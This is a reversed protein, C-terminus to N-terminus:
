RESAEGVSSGDEPLGAAEVCTPCWWGHGIGHMGDIEWTSGVFRLVPGFERKCSSCSGSERRDIHPNLHCEVLVFERPESM